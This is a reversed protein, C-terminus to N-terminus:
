ILTIITMTLDAPALSPGVHIMALEPPGSFPGIPTTSVLIEVTAPSPPGGEFSAWLIM